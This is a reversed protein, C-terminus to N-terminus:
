GLNKFDSRVERTFDSFRPLDRVAPDWTLDRAVLDYEKVITAGPICTGDEKRERGLLLVTDAISCTAPIDHSVIIVTNLEDLTTIKAIMELVKDIMVIDLGSFPEDYLVYHDSSLLQQIIAVRQRQGGSLQAPYLNRKDWLDFQNLYEDRRANGEATTTKKNYFSVNSLVTRHDFLPYSQQVWGVQGLEVPKLPNGILVQGTTPALLGSLLKQTQTKGIGSRGILGVVQGQQIGPRVIDEIHINIDRLILDGGLELSVNEVKLITDTRKFDYKM